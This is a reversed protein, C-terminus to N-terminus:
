REHKLIEEVSLPEGQQPLVATSYLKHWIPKQWIYEKYVIMPGALEWHMPLEGEFDDWQPVKLMLKRWDSETNIAKQTEM